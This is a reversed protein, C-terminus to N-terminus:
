TAFYLADYTLTPPRYLVWRALKDNAKGLGYALAPSPQMWVSSVGAIAASASAVNEMFGRRSTTSIEGDTSMSLSSKVSVHNRPSPAFASSPSLIALATCAAALLSASTM